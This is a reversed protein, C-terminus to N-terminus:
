PDILRRDFSYRYRAVVAIQAFDRHGPNLLYTMGLPIHVSKVELVASTGQRAWRDGLKQTLPSPPSVQYWHAPYSNRPLTTVLSQDFELEILRFELKLTGSLHVLVELATLAASSSTYVISTGVSNWRGGMLRAGTGDLPNDAHKRKVLRWAKITM